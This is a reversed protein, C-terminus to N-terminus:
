AEFHLVAQPDNMFENLSMDGWPMAIGIQNVVAKLRSNLDYDDKATELSLALDRFLAAEQEFKEIDLQALKAAHEAFLKAQLKYETITRNISGTIFGDFPDSDILYLLSITMFGTCLSGTFVSTVDVVTSLGPLVGIHPTLAAHVAEQVTAGMVVSAGTAIIKLAAQMRESFPLDNPNFILISTAEAISTWTMRIIRVFNKATTFFINCLTTTLSSFVGSVAGEGFTALLTSFKEKAKCLGLKIGQAIAEFKDKLGSAARELEDKVAFWVETMILGFAQRLGMKAGTKAAAIGSDKWFHCSCYYEKAIKREYSKRSINYHEMMKAKTEEPLEPHAAIYDPIEADQMSSNLSKSTFRLNESSNALESGDLRALVRGPDDHIKKTSIVHDVTAKENAPAAKSFALNGSAYEDKIVGNNNNARARGERIAARYNDNGKHYKYQEYSGRNEYTAANDTNKYGGGAEGKRVNFVTDVDGGVQDKIFADLGFSTILSQFVVREYQQFLSDFVSDELAPNFDKGVVTTFNQCETM